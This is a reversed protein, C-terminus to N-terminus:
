QGGGPPKIERARKFFLWVGLGIIILPWGRGIWDFHFLGLTGLLFIMGLAILVIAGV